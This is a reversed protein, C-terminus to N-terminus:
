SGRRPRSEHVAWALPTWGDVDSENVQASCGHDLLARVADEHGKECAWSLPSRGNRDAKKTDIVKKSKALIRVADAHGNGSAYSLPSRGEKDALNADIKKQKLMYKLVEATGEGAAFSVASRGKKDRYNVDIARHKCLTSVITLHGARAARILSTGGLHGDAGAEEHWGLLYKVIDHHGNSAALDLATAVDEAKVSTGDGEHRLLQTVCETRGHAAAETLATLKGMTRYNPDANAGLLVTVIQSHGAKAGLRLAQAKERPSPSDKDLIDILVARLNLYAALVVPSPDGHTDDAAGAIESRYFHLWNQCHATEDDVLSRASQLLGSPAEDECLALHEAWHLSSYNYFAHKSGLAQSIDAELDGPERIVLGAKGDEDTEGDEFFGLGAFRFRTSGSDSSLESGSDQSNESPSYWDRAFDKFLLYQICDSAMRLASQKTTIVSMGPCRDALTRAAGESKPGLLFDKATRHILSVKSDALRVLPGLIGLVAGAMDSQCDKGVGEASDHTPKITFAVNLEALLLPRSSALLLQLLRWAATQDQKSISSLFGVYMTELDPPLNDIIDGFDSASALHSKEIKAIVLHIWLFTQGARVCLARVLDSKVDESFHRKIAIEDVKKEIFVRIDKDYGPQGQDIPLQYKELPEKTLYANGLAPRNTLLCKVRSNGTGTAGVVLLDRIANLLDDQSSRECEDLFDLIVYLPGAELDNVIREFISWLASFSSLISTGQVEFVKQVHRVM